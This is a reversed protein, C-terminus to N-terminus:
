IYIWGTGYGRVARAGASCKSAVDDRGVTDIRCGVEQKFVNGQWCVASQRVVEDLRGASPPVNVLIYTPHVLAGDVVMVRLPVERGLNRHDASPVRKHPTTLELHAVVIVQLCIGPCSEDREVPRPRM